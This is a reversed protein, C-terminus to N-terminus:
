YPSTQQQQPQQNIGINATSGTDNLPIDAPMQANVNMYDSNMTNLGGVGFSKLPKVGIAIGSTKPTVAAGVKPFDQMGHSKLGLGSGLNGAGHFRGFVSTPEAERKETRMLPQVFSM